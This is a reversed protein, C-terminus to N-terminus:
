NSGNTDGGNKLNINTKLAPDSSNKVAKFMSTIASDFSEGNKIRDALDPFRDKFQNLMIYADVLDSPIDRLDASLGQPTQQLYSIKDRADLHQIRNLLQNLSCQKAFSQIDDIINVTGLSTYVSNGKLDRDLRYEDYFKIKCKRGEFSPECKPKYKRITGLM